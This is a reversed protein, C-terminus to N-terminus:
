IRRNRSGMRKRNLKNRRKEAAERKEKAKISPKKHEKRKRYEKTIGLQDCLRKFRRIGKEAPLGEGMTIKINDYKSM